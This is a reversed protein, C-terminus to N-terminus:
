GDFVSQDWEWNSVMAENPLQQIRLRYHPGPPKHVRDEVTSLLQGGQERRAVISWGHDAREDLEYRWEYGDIHSILHISHLGELRHRARASRCIMAVLVVNVLIWLAGVMVWGSM